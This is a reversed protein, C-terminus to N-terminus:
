GYIQRKWMMRIMWFAALAAALHKLTHGSIIGGFFWYIQHDYLEFLKALSYFLIIVALDGSQTYHSPLLLMVLTLVGTYAQVAAYLRLDGAGQLESIYWQLVSFIGIFLLFPWLGLALNSNIRDSILAAVFSTFVIVMPLRDWVLRNDDPALHYYGSGWAVLILGLSITVWFWPENSDIFKVKSSFFLLFLGWLGILAFPLNSLVNWANNIGLWSRQDAFHHYSEPQPIPPLMLGIALMLLAIALLIIIATKKSVL